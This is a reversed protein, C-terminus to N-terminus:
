DVGVMCHRSAKVTNTYQFYTISKHIYRRCHVRVGVCHVGVGVCHVRVGVCHVGWVAVCSCLTGGCLWVAVCGWLWERTSHQRREERVNALVEPSM